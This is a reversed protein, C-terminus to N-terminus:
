PRPKATLAAVLREFSGPAELAAGLARRAAAFDDGSVRRTEVREGATIVWAPGSYDRLKPISVHAEYREPHFYVDRQELVILQSSVDSGQFPRRLAFPSAWSWVWAGGSLSPVNVLVAEGPASVKAVGAVAHSIEASLNAARRWAESKEHLRLECGAVLM